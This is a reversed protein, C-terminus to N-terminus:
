ATALAADVSRECLGNVANQVLAAFLPLLSALVLILVYIGGNVFMTALVGTTLLICMPMALWTPAEQEMGSFRRQENIRICLRHFSFFFWALNVFPIFCLGLAVTASPDNPRLRPMREHLQNLYILTFLGGSVFNLLVVSAVPFSVLTHRQGIVALEDPAIFSKGCAPCRTTRGAIQDDLENPKTCYPCAVQM